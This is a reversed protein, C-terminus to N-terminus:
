SDFLFGELEFEANAFSTLNILVNCLNKAEINQMKKKKKYM